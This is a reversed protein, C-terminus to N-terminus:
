KGQASPDIVAATGAAPLHLGALAQTTDIDLTGEGQTDRYRVQIHGPAPALPYFLILRQEANGAISLPLTSQLALIRNNVKTNNVARVIGIAFVAPGAVLLGAGAASLGSIGMGPAMGMAYLYAAGVAGTATAGAIILGTGGVGAKVKLGSDRYRRASSRSGKVLQKRTGLPQVRTGLSDFVSVDLLEIPTASLNRVRLHYEDWDANKAWAMRANRVIVWDLRAALRADAAEALATTVEVPQPEKVVKAGGCASLVLVALTVGLTRSFM